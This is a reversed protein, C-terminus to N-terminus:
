QQIITLEKTEPSNNKYDLVEWLWKESISVELINVVFENHRIIYWIWVHQISKLTKLFLREDKARQFVEDNKIRDTPKIKLM